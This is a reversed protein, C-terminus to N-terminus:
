IAADDGCRRLGEAFGFEWRRLAQPDIMIRSSQLFRSFRGARAPRVDQRASRLRADRL